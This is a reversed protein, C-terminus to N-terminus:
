AFSIWEHSSNLRTSKRDGGGLGGIFAQGGFSPILPGYVAGNKAVRAAVVLAATEKAEPRAAMAQEVLTGAPMMASILSLPLLQLDSSRRTPFSHLYSLDPP